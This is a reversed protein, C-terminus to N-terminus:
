RAESSIEDEVPMYYVQPHDCAPCTEPPTTGNYIYGCVLCQWDIPTDRKYLTGKQLMDLYRRFRAEHAREITAIAEFHEAIEDFGEERAIRASEAYEEVGESQEEAAATALNEATTGIVGADITVTNPVKGGQLMKFFVKGHHLENNATNQFVEAITPLKEKKAQDAYFIYRTYACSESIYALALRAETKTGRIDKTNIAM